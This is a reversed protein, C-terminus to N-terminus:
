QKFLILIQAQTVREADAMRVDPVMNMMQCCPAWRRYLCGSSIFDRLWVLIFNAQHSLEEGMGDPILGKM